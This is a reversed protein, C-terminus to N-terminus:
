GTVERLFVLDCYFAREISRGANRHCLRKGKGGFGEAYAGYIVSSTVERGEVVM